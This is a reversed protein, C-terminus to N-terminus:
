AAHPEAGVCGDVHFAGPLSVDVGRRGSFGRIGEPTRGPDLGGGTEAAADADGHGALAIVNYSYVM